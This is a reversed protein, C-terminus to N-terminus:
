PLISKLLYKQEISCVTPFIIDFTMVLDGFRGNQDPHPLGEGSFIKTFTPQIVKGSPDFCLKREGLLTPVTYCNGGILAERLNIKVTHILNNNSDRQYLPHTIDRLVFVIDAPIVGLKEDGEKPFTITTGPKAGAKVDIRLIKEVKRLSSRDTSLVNKTIKMKKTCGTMIEELTVYLDKYIPSDQSLSRQKKIGSKGVTVQGTSGRRKVVNMRLDILDDILDTKRNAFIGPFTATFVSRARSEHSFTSSFTSTTSGESKGNRDYDDRSSQKSLVFYAETIENFKQSAGPENNRDPHYKLALKRYVTRIEEFSAQRSIDLVKYYDIAM